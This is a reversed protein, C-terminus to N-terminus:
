RSIEDLALIVIPRGRLHTLFVIRQQDGKLKLDQILAEPQLPSGRKKVTVSGVRRARLEARLRKLNFPFWDEVAWVRAFPTPQLIDGTLYAIDPDLQAVGLQSGLTAVLGARLVSPDPEYLYARPESLPLSGASASLTYPGPLVTARRSSTKLPGFWLAAEKLEGRLSIFEIEAEYPRLEDLDVGPSVKVGLTPYRPLWAQVLELAPQYDHVSFIRRGNARRGPDFFLALDPAPAFPLPSALDAQIMVAREVLDLSELNARAMRLRLPDLDLGYTPAIAALALTDCGVSCGLDALRGFPRYRQMRYASVEYASAQELAPRTFYMQAAFPFKVAAEGRLIATELASRALEGPYQRSLAAYDRLFNKELPQMAQATQLAEQGAPSLLVRFDKIEM